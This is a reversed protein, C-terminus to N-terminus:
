SEMLVANIQPLLGRLESESFCLPIYVEEENEIFTCLDIEEERDEVSGIPRLEFGKPGDMLAFVKEM